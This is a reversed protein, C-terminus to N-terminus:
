RAADVSQPQRLLVTRVTLEGIQRGMAQGVEGSFRYHFGAYIRAKMVEDAYDSIRTWKRVVGPATPSTLSLEGVEDGVLFALVTAVASSTICHACPYEPHLPTDGLPRWQEERPTAPNGTSDGNRIATIPRWFDYAYKADFVAIQADNAAMTALAYLRACDLLDMKQRTAVQRLLPNFTRAGTLIWFRGIDTQEPTRLTSNQGGLTRVENYDRVWTDSTLAPPPPPRFQSGTTMVWPKMRGANSFLPIATPVYIGPAAHPRYTEQAELGDDRRDLLIGSAARKGLEIGDAKGPNQDIDALMRALTEDLDQKRDPYLAVLVDHGASAAAADKSATPLTALRLRYPTYRGEVANVAEFIAAHLVAINRGHPLAGLQKEAAIADAKANWDMVIDARASAESAALVFASMSLALLQSRALGSM